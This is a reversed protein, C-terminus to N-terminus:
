PWHGERLRKPVLSDSNLSASSSIDEYMQTLCQKIIDGFLISIHELMM